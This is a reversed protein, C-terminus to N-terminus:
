VARAVVYVHPQGRRLALQRALGGAGSRRRLPTKVMGSGSDVFYLKSLEDCRFGAAEVYRKLARRNPLWWYPASYSLLTASPQKPRLLTLSISVAENLLLVGDPAMVRRVATLAGIPDRLHLLLTGLIAYDFTGASETALDYVSLNRREVSSGLARKAVDFARQSAALGEKQDPRLSPRPEPWDHQDTDDVDIGVVESAGRRELEFAWFGDRTGVDLCRKGALSAPIPLRAVSSRLDFEGPTVIGGPLELTHYWRTAAIEARLDDTLTTEPVAPDYGRGRGV